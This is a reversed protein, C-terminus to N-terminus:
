AESRVAISRNRMSTATTSVIATITTAMPPACPSDSCGSEGAEEGCRVWPNTIPATNAASLKTPKSPAVVSPSSTRRGRRLTGSAIASEVRTTPAM